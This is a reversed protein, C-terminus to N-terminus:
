LKVGLVQRHIRPLLVPLMGAVRAKKVTKSVGTGGLSSLGAELNEQEVEEMVGAQTGALHKRQHLHRQTVVTLGRQTVMTEM